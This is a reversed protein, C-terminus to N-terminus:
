NPPSLPLLSRLRRERLLLGLWLLVGLVAPAIFPEQLRVHAAVAGGLYGTLLIAGLVATRPIAYVVTCALEVIGLPVALQDPWGLDAFGQVVAEPRALKMVGSFLLGLIPLVSVVWGAWLLPKSAVPSKTESM